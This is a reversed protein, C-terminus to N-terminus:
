AKATGKQKLSRDFDEFEEGTLEKFAKLYGELTLKNSKVEIAYQRLKNEGFENAIDDKVSLLYTYGKADFYLRTIAKKLSAIQEYVHSVQEPVSLMHTDTLEPINITKLLNKIKKENM